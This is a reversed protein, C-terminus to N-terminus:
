SKGHGVIANPKGRLRLRPQEFAEPLRAPRTAAADSEAQRDTFADDFRMATPNPALANRARARLGQERDGHTRGLNLLDAGSRRQSMASSCRQMAAFFQRFTQSLDSNRPVRPCDWLPISM